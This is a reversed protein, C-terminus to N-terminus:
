LHSGPCEPRPVLSVAAPRTLNQDTNPTTAPGSCRLGGPPADAGPSRGHRPRRPAPAATPSARAQHPAAAFELCRRSTQELALLDDPRSDAHQELFTLSSDIQELTATTSNWRPTIAAVSRAAAPRTKYLGPRVPDGAAPASDACCPVRGQRQLAFQHEGGLGHLRRGASGAPAAAPAPGWCGNNWSCAGRWPRRGSALLPGYDLRAVSCEGLLRRGGNGCPLGHDAAMAPAPPLGFTQELDTLGTAM